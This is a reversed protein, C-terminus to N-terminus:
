RNWPRHLFRIPEDCVASRSPFPMGMNSRWYKFSFAFNSPNLTSGCNPSANSARIITSRVVTSPAIRFRYRPRCAVALEERTM